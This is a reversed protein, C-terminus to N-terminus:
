AGKLLDVTMAVLDRTQKMIQLDAEYARNAERLDGMELLMNVNPRKVDGNADAAPNGPDREIAFPSPDTGIANIKVLNVGNARDLENAFSVTKRRYPDAGATKGTSQANAMNESVVRLRASQAALGSAAIKLSADLPDIM